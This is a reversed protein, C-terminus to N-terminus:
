QRLSGLASSGRGRASSVFKRSKVAGALVPSMGAVPEPRVFAFEACRHLLDRGVGAQRATLHDDVVPDHADQVRQM